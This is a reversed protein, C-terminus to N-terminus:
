PSGSSRRHHRQRLSDRADHQANGKGFRSKKESENAIYKRVEYRARELERDTMKEAMVPLAAKAGADSQRSAIATWVYGDVVDKEIGVGHFTAAGLAAQGLPDGGAAANREVSVGRMGRRQEM